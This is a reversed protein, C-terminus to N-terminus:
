NLKNIINLGLLGLNKEVIFDLKNNKLYEAYSGTVIIKVEDEKLSYEELIDGVIGIVANKYGHYIGNQMANVTNNGIVKESSTIDVRPLKSSESYLSKQFLNIGPLILGGMFEKKKTIFDITTISSASIIILNDKYKNAAAVSRIVRDSGVSKPNECKINIGVKLGASIFKAPKKTIDRSLMDYTQQLEPVVTSVIVEDVKSLNMDRDMLILKITLCIEEVTRQRDTKVSFSTLLKDEEFLGFITNKNEVDIALLM